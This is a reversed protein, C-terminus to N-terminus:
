LARCNWWLTVKLWECRYRCKGLLLYQHRGTATISQIKPTNTLKASLFSLRSNPKHSDGVPEQRTVIICHGLM